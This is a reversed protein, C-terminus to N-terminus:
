ELCRDRRCPDVAAAGAGGRPVDGATAAGAARPQRGAGCDPWHADAPTLVADAYIPIFVGDAYIPPLVADAFM